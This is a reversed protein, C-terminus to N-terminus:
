LIGSLIDDRDREDDTIQPLDAATIKGPAAFPDIPLPLGQEELKNSIIEALLEQEFLTIDLFKAGIGNDSFKYIAKCALPLFNKNPLQVLMRFEEGTYLNETREILCGGLSIQTMLTATAEGQKTYRVAPLDLAFRIHRRQEINM